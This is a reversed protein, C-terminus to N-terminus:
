NMSNLLVFNEIIKAMKFEFNVFLKLKLYKCKFFKDIIKVIFIYIIDSTKISFKLSVILIM